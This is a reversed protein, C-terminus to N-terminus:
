NEGFKMPSLGFSFFVGAELLDSVQWCIWSVVSNLILLSSNEGGNKQGGCRPGSDCNDVAGLYCLANDVQGCLLKGWCSGLGSFTISSLRSLLSRKSTTLMIHRLTLFTVFLTQHAAHDYRLNNKFAKALHDLWFCASWTSSLAQSNLLFLYVRDKQHRWVWVM